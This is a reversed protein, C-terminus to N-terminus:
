LYAAREAQEVLVPPREWCGNSVRAEGADARVLIGSDSACAAHWSRRRHPLPRSHPLCQGRPPCAPEVTSVSVSRSQLLFALDSQSLMSCDSRPAVASAVVLSFAARIAFSCSRATRLMVLWIEEWSSGFRVSPDLELWLVRGVASAYVSPYLRVLSRLSIADALFHHNGGGKEM